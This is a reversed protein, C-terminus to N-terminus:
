RKEQMWLVRSTIIPEHFEHFPLVRDILSVRGKYREVEFITWDRWQKLM